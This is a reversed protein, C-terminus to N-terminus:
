PTLRTFLARTQSNGYSYAKCSDDKNNRLMSVNKYLRPAALLPLFYSGHLDLDEEISSNPLIFVVFYAIPISSYPVEEYYIKIITKNRTSIRLLQPTRTLHWLKLMNMAAWVSCIRLRHACLLQLGQVNNQVYCVGRKKKKKKQECCHNHSRLGRMNTMNHSTFHTSIVHSKPWLTLQPVLPWVRDGVRRSWVLLFFTPVHHCWRHVSSNFRNVIRQPSTIWFFGNCTVKNHKAKGHKNFLSHEYVNGGWRTQTLCNYESNSTLM